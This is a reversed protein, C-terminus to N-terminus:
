KTIIIKKKLFINQSKIEIFYVGSAANHLDIEKKWHMSTGISRSQECSFIEQGLATMISISIEDGAFGNILEVMLGDTAPNPYISINADSIVDDIGSILVYTTASNVCGNSDSVIVTYLGTQLVTYSQNTAGPIDYANLQWQYSSAPSSTLTYGAQTITPFPPTPYVTIYNSLTLTDSGNAGTAILTVDYTGPNDYCINTPNQDTSFSPDGGPFQWQWSTPNNFSQDTFNTCFKECLTSNSATFLVQNQFSCIFNGPCSPDPVFTWLDNMCYGIASIIITGGFLWLQCNDDIWGDAGMRAKPYNNASSVGQVGYYGPLNTGTTGKVLTWQLTNSDFSWLDSFYGISNGGFTWFHGEDDSWCSRNEYRGRPKNNTDPDCTATLSGSVDSYNSGSMWAWENIGPDYKWVDNYYASQYAFAGAFLWFSGYQDKFKGYTIRAGPTNAADPIGKVGYTGNQNALDSGKMWTWESTSINYRWLDNYYELGQGGFFWLNESSDIWTATTEDRVGPTNNISPIGQVGYVAPTYTTQSGNMWTWENTSVDYKWLDSLGGFNLSSYGVGGYLWFNGDSDVWTLAAYARAGPLNNPSAVGLTGYVGVQNPIGPGKMWTWNNTSVDYKWLDGYKNNSSYNYGGFLWLNNNIDKWEAPEYVAPPTNLPSSIGQTGYNGPQDFISDGKM